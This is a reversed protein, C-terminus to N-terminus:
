EIAEAHRFRTDRRAFFKIRMTTTVLIKQILFFRRREVGTLKKRL